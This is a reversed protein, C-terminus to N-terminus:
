HVEQVHNATFEDVSVSVRQGVPVIPLDEFLNDPLKGTALLSAKVLGINVHHFQFCTMGAVAKIDLERRALDDFNRKPNGNGAVNVPLVNAAADAPDGLGNIGTLFASLEAPLNPNSLPVKITDAPDVHVFHTFTERRHCGNCAARSVRHRAWNEQLITASGPNQTVNINMGQATWHHVINNPVDTIISNAAMFNNGAPFFLPVLPAPDEFDPGSLLPKINLIWTLLTPNVTPTPINNFRDEPTDEVTTEQLFTFPFQTLQFERLEWSFAPVVPPNSLAVENTRLQGLSSGNPNRPNADATVFQETIAQLRANYVPTGPPNLPDELAKWQKAWSRVDECKCKAIRYEFIV